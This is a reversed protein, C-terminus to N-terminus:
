FRIEVGEPGLEVNLSRGDDRALLPLLVFQVQPPGVKNVGDSDSLASWLEEDVMLKGGTGSLRWQGDESVEISVDGGYPLASELCLTALFALRIDARPQPTEPWYSVNVRGGSTMDSLVGRVESASISQDGAAGFAIRFFRIRASANVVSDSILDLEPGPTAGTMGLLELGNNIAGIPSILDHCIRSGILAALRADASVV